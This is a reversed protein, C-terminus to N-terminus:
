QRPKFDNTFYTLNWELMCVRARNKGRVARKQSFLYIFISVIQLLHMCISLFDRELICKVREFDNARANTKASFRLRM